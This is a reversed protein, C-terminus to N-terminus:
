FIDRIAIRAGDNKASEVAAFVIALSQLNDRGSCEPERGEKVASV